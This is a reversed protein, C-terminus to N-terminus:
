SNESSSRMILMTMSVKVTLKQKHNRKSSINLYLELHFKNVCVCVRTHISHLYKIYEVYPM